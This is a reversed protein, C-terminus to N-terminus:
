RLHATTTRRRRTITTDALSGRRLVGGSPRRRGGGPCRNITGNYWYYSDSNDDWSAFQKTALKVRLRRTNNDNDKNDKNHTNHTNDEENWVNHRFINYSFCREDSIETHELPGVRTLLPCGMWLLNVEGDNRFMTFQGRLYLARNDGFSYSVVDYDRWEDEEIWTGLDGWVVDMDAWAWHTYRGADKGKASGDASGDAMGGGGDDDHQLYDSFVYGFLSKYDTLVFGGHKAFSAEFGRVYAAEERGDEHTSSSSSSTGWPDWWSILSLKESRQTRRHRNREERIAQAVKRGFVGAMSNRGGLTVFFINDITNNNNSNDTNFQYPPPILNNNDEIFFYWDVSPNRACSLLLYSMWPPWENGYFPILVALKTENLIRDSHVILSRPPQRMSSQDLLLLRANEEDYISIFVVWGFVVM